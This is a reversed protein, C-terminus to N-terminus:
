HNVIQAPLGIITSGRTIAASGKLSDNWFTKTHGAASQPTSIQIHPLSKYPIHRLSKKHIVVVNWVTEIEFTLWFRPIYFM